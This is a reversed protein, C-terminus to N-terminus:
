ADARTPPPANYDRRPARLESPYLLPNRIRRDPTRNGGPAGNLQTDTGSPYNWEPCM